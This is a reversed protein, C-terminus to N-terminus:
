RRAILFPMIAFMGLMLYYVTQSVPDRSALYERISLGRLWLVLGFEAVLLLVLAIAGMGLRALPAFPVALHLAIWRAAVITVILMIPMEMLEAIRTGFRPVVWLTRITGLMFGAGFVLAFYLVGGKLIRCLLKFHRPLFKKESIGVGSFISGFECYGQKRKPNRGFNKNVFKECDRLPGLDDLGDCLLNHASRRCACQPFLLAWVTLILLPLQLQTEFGSYGFVDSHDAAFASDRIASFSGRQGTFKGLKRGLGTSDHDVETAHFQDVGSAESCEYRNGQRRLRALARNLQSGGAIQDAFQQVKGLQGGDEFEIGGQIGGGDCGTSM